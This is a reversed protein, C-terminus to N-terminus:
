KELREALKINIGESGRVFAFSGPGKKSYNPLLALRILLKM